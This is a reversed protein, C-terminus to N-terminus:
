TFTGKCTTNILNGQIDPLSSFASADFVKSASGAINELQVLDVNKTIGVCLINIGATRITNAIDETGTSTGDTILILVKAAAVRAGKNADQFHKQYAETLAKAINTGGGRFSIKGIKDLLPAKTSHTNLYFQTKVTNSFSVFAVQVADPRITLTEVM